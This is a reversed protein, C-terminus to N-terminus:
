APPSVGGSRRAPGAVVTNSWMCSSGSRNACPQVGPFQPMSPHRSRAAPEHRASLSRRRRPEPPPSAGAAALHPRGLASSGGAPPGLANLRTAGFRRGSRRARGGLGPAPPRNDPRGRRAIPYRRSASRHGRRSRDRDAGAPPTVVSHGATRTSARPPPPPRRGPIGTRLRQRVWRRSSRPRRYPRACWSACRASRRAAPPRRPSCTNTLRRGAESPVRV